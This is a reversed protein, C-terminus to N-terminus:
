VPRADNSGKPQGCIGLADQTKATFDFDNGYTDAWWQPATHIGKGGQHHEYCLPVAMRDPTKRQSFRGMIVHHAATPTTQAEGFAECICCPLERVRALYAPDKAAKPAKLGLPRFGALSM